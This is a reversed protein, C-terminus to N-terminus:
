WNGGRDPGLLGALKKQADIVLAQEGLLQKLQRNEEVLPDRNSRKRKDRLGAKGAALFEDRWKYAQTASIGYRACLAAIPEAGKLMALVLALKEEEKWRRNM